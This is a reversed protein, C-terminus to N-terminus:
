CFDLVSVVLWSYRMRKCIAEGIKEKPFHHLINIDVYKYEEAYVVTNKIMQQM